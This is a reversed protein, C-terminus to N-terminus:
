SVGLSMSSTAKVAYLVNFLFTDSLRTRSFAFAGCLEKSKYIPFRRHCQVSSESM